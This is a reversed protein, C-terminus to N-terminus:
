GSSTATREEPWTSLIDYLLSAIAVYQPKELPGPEALFLHFPLRFDQSMWVKRKPM